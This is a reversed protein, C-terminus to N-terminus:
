YIMNIIKRIPNEIADAITPLFDYLLISICLMKNPIQAINAVYVNRIDNFHSDLLLNNVVFCEHIHAFILMWALLNTM